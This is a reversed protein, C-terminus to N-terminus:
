LCNIFFLKQFGSQFAQTERQWCLPILASVEWARLAWLTESHEPKKEFVISWEGKVSSKQSLFLCPNEQLLTWNLTGWYLLSISMSSLTWCLAGLFTFKLMEGIFTLSLSSSSNPRSLLLSLIIEDIYKVLQLFHAFPVLALNKETMGLSLVLPSLCLSFCLLTQSFVLFCKKKETLSASCQFLNGVSTTSDGTRPYIWFNGPYPGWCSVRPPGAQTPPISWMVELLGKWGWDNWSEIGLPPWFMRKCLLGPVPVWGWFHSSPEPDACSDWDM